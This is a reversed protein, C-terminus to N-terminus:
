EGVRWGARAVWWELLTKVYANSPMTNAIDWASRSLRPPAPPLQNSKRRLPRKLSSFWGNSSSKAPPLLSNSSSKNNSSSFWGHRSKSPAKGKPDDLM